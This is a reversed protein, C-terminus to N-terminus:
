KKKGLPALVMTMQRGETKPHQEVQSLEALDSEIRNMMEMGLEQHAM